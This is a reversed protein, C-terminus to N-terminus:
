PVKRLQDCLGGQRRDRVGTHSAITKTLRPSASKCKPTRSPAFRAGTRRWCRMSQRIPMFSFGGCNLWRCRRDRCPKSTSRKWCHWRGPRAAAFCNALRRRSRRAEAGPYLALSKAAIEGHDSRELATLIASAVAAPQDTALLQLLDAACANGNTESLTRILQLRDAEAANRDGVIAM